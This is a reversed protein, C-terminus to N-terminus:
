TLDIVEGSVFPRKGTELKVKKSRPGEQTLDIVAGAESKVRPVNKEKKVRKAELAKLKERLVREEELDDDPAPSRVPEPSAKRKLNPPPPAIGNAQLIAIPRYKWKFTVIDPGLCRTNVFTEPTALLVPNALTIQQTVAKKSKEHLKVELLSRRVPAVDRETVERPSVVLKVVGLDEKSSAALFNDDDTLSLSSFMFPRVSAGDSIGDNMRTEPLSRAYLLQSGCANGDMNVCAATVGNYSMNTCHVSFKKGLESAIYCTITKKDESTVVEYETTEKGDICLWASFQGCNSYLM